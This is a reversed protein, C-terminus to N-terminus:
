RWCAVRRKAHGERAGEACLVAPAARTAAMFVRLQALMRAGHLLDVDNHGADVYLPPFCCRAPVHAQIEYANRVDITEDQLGHIVFVREDVGQVDQVVPCFLRDLVAVLPAAFTMDDEGIRFLVRLGSALPSLLVLGKYLHCGTARQRESLLRALRTSATCGLSRGMLFIGSYAGAQRAAHEYVAEIAHYMNAESMLAVSSHGYGVYDYMLVSCELNTALWQAHDHATGLDEANGHSFLLLPRLAPAAAQPQARPTFTPPPADDWDYPSSAPPGLDILNDVVGAPSDALPALPVLPEPQLLMTAIRLGGETRVYVAEHELYGPRLPPEFVLNQIAYAFMNSLSLAAPM